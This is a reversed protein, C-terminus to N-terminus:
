EQPPNITPTFSTIPPIPLGKWDASPSWNNAGEFNRNWRIGASFPAAAAITHLAPPCIQCIPLCSIRIDFTEAPIM